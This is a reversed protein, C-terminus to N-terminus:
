EAFVSCQIQATWIVKLPMETQRSQPVSSVKQKYHAM